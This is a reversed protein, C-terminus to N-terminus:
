IMKISFYMNKDKNKYEINNTEVKIKTSNIDVIFFDEKYDEEKIGKKNLYDIFQDYDMFTTAWLDTSIYGKEKFGNLKNLANELEEKTNKLKKQFTLLQRDKYLIILIILILPLFYKWLISFDFTQSYELKLLKNYILNKDNPDM